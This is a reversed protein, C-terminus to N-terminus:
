PTCDSWCYLLAGHLRVQKGGNGIRVADGLEIPEPVLDGVQGSVEVGGGSSQKVQNALEVGASAPVGAEAGTGVPERPTDAEVQAGGSLADADRARAQCGAEGRWPGRV